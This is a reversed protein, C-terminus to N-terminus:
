VHGDRKKNESLNFPNLIVNHVTMIKSKPSYM